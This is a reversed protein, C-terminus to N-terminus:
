HYYAIGYGDACNFGGTRQVREGRNQSDASGAMCPRCPRLGSFSHGGPRLLLRVKHPAVEALLIACTIGLPIALLLSGATVALSGVIMTLIGYQGQGPRWVTGFIFNFVGIEQFAPFGEKFIFVAIALLVVFSVTASIFVAYKALRDIFYRSL